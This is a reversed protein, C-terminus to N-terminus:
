RPDIPGTLCVEALGPVPVRGIRTRVTFRPPCSVGGVLARYEKQVVRQQFQLPLSRRARRGPRQM